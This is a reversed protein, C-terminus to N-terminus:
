VAVRHLVRHKLQRLSSKVQDMVGLLRLTWSHVPLIMFFKTDKHMYRCKQLHPIVKVLNGFHNM